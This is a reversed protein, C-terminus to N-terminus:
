VTYCGLLGADEFIISKTNTYWSDWARFPPKGTKDM